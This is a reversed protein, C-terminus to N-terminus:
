SIVDPDIPLGLRDAEDADSVIEDMLHPTWDVLQGNREQEEVSALLARVEAIRDESETRRLADHVVESASLFRGSAIKKRIFDGYHQGLKVNM